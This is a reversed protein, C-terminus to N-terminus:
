LLPASAATIWQLASAEGPADFVTVVYVGRLATATWRGNERKMALANGAQSMYAARFSAYGKEAQLRDPYKILLLHVKEKGDGYQGLAAEVNGTLNFINQHSVFFAQNLLVHSHLYWTRVRLFPAEGPPLLGLLKAPNGTEKIAAAVRRGVELSAAEVDAGAGDGYVSVFHYGKWFRLLGGGFGSGQGIGAEPEGIEFSFLGYADAPSGMRYIELTIAPRAPKEYRLVTLKKMHYAIFLEAAGNMYTYAKDPDYYAPGETVKWGDAEPPWLKAEGAAVGESALIAGRVAFLCILALAAIVAFRTFVKETSCREKTKM